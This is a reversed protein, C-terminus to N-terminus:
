GEDKRQGRIRARLAASEEAYSEMYEACWFRIPPAPVFEQRSCCYLAEFEGWVPRPQLRCCTACNEAQIAALHIVDLKM